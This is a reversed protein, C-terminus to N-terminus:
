HLLVTGVREWRGGSAGEFLPDALPEHRHGISSFLMGETRALTLISDMTGPRTIFRRLM